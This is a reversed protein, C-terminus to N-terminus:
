RFMITVGRIFPRIKGYLMGHFAPTHPTFYLEVREKVEASSLPPHAVDRRPRKTGTFSILHTRLRGPITRPNKGRVPTRFWSRVNRFVLLNLINKKQATYCLVSSELQGFSCPVEYKVVSDTM